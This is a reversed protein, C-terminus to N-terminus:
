DSQRRAKRISAVTMAVIEEAERYLIALKEKEIKPHSQALDELWYCTEDAEEEVIKMKAVFDARSRARCTARYNAGISTGSRILQRAIVNTALSAPMESVLQIVSVGLQKTRRKFDDTDLSTRGEITM